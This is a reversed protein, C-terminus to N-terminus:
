PANVRSSSESLSSRGALKNFAESRRLRISTSCHRLDHGADAILVYQGGLIYEAREIEILAFFHAAQQRHVRIKRGLHLQPLAAETFEMEHNLGDLGIRLQPLPHAGLQRRDLLVYLRRLRDPGLGNVSGFSWRIETRLRWRNGSRLRRRNGAGLKRRNGGSLRWRSRARLRWRNRARVHM